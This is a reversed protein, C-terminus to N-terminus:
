RSRDSSTSCSSAEELGRLPFCPSTLLRLLSPAQACPSTVDNNDDKGNALVPGVLFYELEVGGVQLLVGAVAQGAPVTLHFM